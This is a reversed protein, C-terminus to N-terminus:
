KEMRSCFCRGTLAEQESLERVHNLVYEMRDRTFVNGRETFEVYALDYPKYTDLQKNFGELEENTLGKEKAKEVLRMKENDTLKQGQEIITNGCEEGKCIKVNQDTRFPENKTCGVVIFLLLFLFCVNRIKGLWTRSLERIVLFYNM